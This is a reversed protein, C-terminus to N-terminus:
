SDSDSSNDSSGSSPESGDSYKSFDVEKFAVVEHGDWNFPATKTLSPWKEPPNISVLKSQGENDPDPQLEKRVFYGGRAQFSDTSYVVGDDHKLLLCQYHKGDKFQPISKKMIGQMVFNSLNSYDTNAQGLKLMLADDTNGVGLAERQSEHFFMQQLIPQYISLGTEFVKLARHAPNKFDFTDEITDPSFTFDEREIPTLTTTKDEQQTTLWHQAVHERGHEFNEPQHDPLISSNKEAWPQAETNAVVEWGEGGQQTYAQCAQYCRMWDEGTLLRPDTTAMLRTFLEPNNQALTTMIGTKFPNGSLTTMLDKLKEKKLSGSEAELDRDEIWHADTTHFTSRNNEKAAGCEILLYNRLSEIVQTREPNNKPLPINSCEVLEKLTLGLRSLTRSSSAKCHKFSGVVEAKLESLGLERQDAPIGALQAKIPVYEGSSLGIRRAFGTGKKHRKAPPPTPSHSPSSSGSRPIKPDM